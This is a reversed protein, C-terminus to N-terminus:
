NYYGIDGGSCGRTLPQGRYLAYGGARGWWEQLISVPVRAETGDSDVGCESEGECVQREFPRVHWDYEDCVVRLLCATGSSPRFRLPRAHSFITSSQSWGSGDRESKTAIFSQSELKKLDFASSTFNPCRCTIARSNILTYTKKYWIDPQRQEFM